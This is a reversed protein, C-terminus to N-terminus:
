WVNDRRIFWYAKRESLEPDLEIQADESCLCEQEFVSEDDTKELVASLSTDRMETTVESSPSHECPHVPCPVWDFYGVDIWHEWGRFKDTYEYVRQRRGCRCARRPPPPPSHEPNQVTVAVQSGKFPSWLCCTAYFVLKNLVQVTM